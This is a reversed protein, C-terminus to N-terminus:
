FTKNAHKELLKDISASDYLIIKKGPQTFRIRGEDRYIQVTIKSHIGFNNMAAGTFFWKNEKIKEKDKREVLEDILKYFVDEAFCILKVDV